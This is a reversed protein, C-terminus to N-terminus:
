HVRAKRSVTKRIEEWRAQVLESANFKAGDEDWPTSWDFNVLTRKAAEIHKANAVAHDCVKGLVWMYTAHHRPSLRSAAAKYRRMRAGLWTRLECRYDAERTLHDAIADLRDAIKELADAARLDCGLRIQDISLGDDQSTGWNTRSAERYPKFPM